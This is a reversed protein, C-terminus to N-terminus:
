FPIDQQEPPAGAGEPVPAEFSTPEQYPVGPEATISTVNRYYNGQGQQSRKDGFRVEVNAVVAYRAAVKFHDETFGVVKDFYKVWTEPKYVNTVYPFDNMPPKKDDGYFKVESTGNPRPTVEIVACRFRKALQGPQGMNAPVEAEGAVPTSGPAQTGAPPALVPTSALAFSTFGKDLAAQEFAAANVLVDLDTDAEINFDFVNGLPSILKVRGNSM